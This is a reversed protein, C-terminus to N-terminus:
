KTTINDLFPPLFTQEWRSCKCYHKIILIPQDGTSVLDSSTKSSLILLFPIFATADPSTLHFIFTHWPCCDMRSCLQTVVTEEVHHVSSCVMKVSVKERGRGNERLDKYAAAWYICERTEGHWLKKGKFRYGCKRVAEKIKVAVYLHQCLLPFKYYAVLMGQDGGAWGGGWRGYGNGAASKGPRSLM